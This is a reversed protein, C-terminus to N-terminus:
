NVPNAKAKPYMKSLLRAHGLLEWLGPDSMTSALSVIEDIQRPKAPATFPAVNEHVAPPATSSPAEDKGTILHDYTVDFLKCLATLNALKINATQGNEWKTVAVRSVGVKQAVDEQRLEKAERLRSIRKALTEMYGTNCLDNYSHNSNKRYSHNCHRAHIM